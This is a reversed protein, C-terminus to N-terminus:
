ANIAAVLKKVSLMGYDFVFRAGDDMTIVARKTMGKKAADAGSINERPLVLEAEAGDDRLYTASGGSAAASGVALGIGKAISKFSSDYAARFTVERDGVSLEGTLRGGDEPLYNVTWSAM